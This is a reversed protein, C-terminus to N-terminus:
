QYLYKLEKKLVNWLKLEPSQFNSGFNLRIKKDLEPIPISIKKQFIPGM